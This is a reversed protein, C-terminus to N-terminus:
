LNRQASPALAVGMGARVLRLMTFLEHTEQVINPAFGAARCVAIVHDHGSASTSRAITIFPAGALLALEDQPRWPGRVGFALVLAVPLIPRIKVRADTVPLRLFGVDIQGRALASVQNPTPMDWLRLEVGPYKARFRLLVDPLLKEITALGVGIRLMGLEGRVASPAADLASSAEQLVLQAQTLLM